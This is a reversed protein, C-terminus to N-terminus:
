VLLSLSPCALGGVENEPPPFLWPPLQLGFLPRSLSCRSGLISCPDM